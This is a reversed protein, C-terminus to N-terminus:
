GDLLAGLRERLLRLGRHVDSKVTGTPRGLVSAAEDYSLGEVLRVVIAARYHLPLTQLARELAEGLERNEALSPPSPQDAAVEIAPQGDPSSENLSSSARRGRIRNRAANVTVAFLWPRLNLERVRAASYSTYLARHTKVLADQVAEEADESNGTVRWALGYLRDQYAAVLAEFAGVRREVIGAILDQDAYALLVGSDLRTENMLRATM